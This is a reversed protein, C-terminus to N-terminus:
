QGLGSWPQQVQQAHGGTHLRHCRRVCGCSCIKQCCQHLMGNLSSSGANRGHQCAISAKLACDVFDHGAMGQVKPACPQLQMAWYKHVVIQWARSFPSQFHEAAAGCCCPRTGM